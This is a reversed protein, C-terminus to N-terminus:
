QPDPLEPCAGWASLMELLDLVDVFGDANVDAPCGGCAGWAGLLALLDTVGVGGDGDVDAPCCVDNASWDYYPGQINFPGNDCFDSSGVRVEIDYGADDVRLAGVHNGEFDATIFCFGFPGGSADVLVAGGDHAGVHGTVVNGNMVFTSAAYVAAGGLADSGAVSNDEFQDTTLDLDTGLHAVAGGYATGAVADVANRRFESFFALTIGENLIAAGGRGDDPRTVNDEFVCDSFFCVSDADVRCASGENYAFTCNEVVPNADIVALASGPTTANPATATACHDFACGVIKPSSNVLRVAGEDGPGTLFNRITFGEIRALNHEGGSLTFAHAGPTAAGDLVCAAAGNVSKVAIIKGGFDIDTFGAGAYTGDAVLVQDGEEAADIAAQITAYEGPVHLDAAAALSAVCGAALAPAIVTWDM